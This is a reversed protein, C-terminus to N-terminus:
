PEFPPVCDGADVIPEYRPRNVSLGTVIQRASEPVDLDGQPTYWLSFLMALQHTTYMLARSELMEAAREDSVPGPNNPTVELQEYREAEDTWINILKDSWARAEDPSLPIASRLQDRDLGFSPDLVAHVVLGIENWLLGSPDVRDVPNGGVYTYMNVGGALGIPDRTLFRGAVADYWRNQMFFLGGSEDTVGYRGVHTFPNEVRAFASAVQGYPTYRYIAAPKGAEDTLAATNGNKDHHYFFYGKDKREMAVIAAERWFYRATVEGGETEFLLRGSADHHFVKTRGNVTSRVRRGLGDYAHAANTGHLVLNTLRAEADYQATFRSPFNTTMGGRWDRQVASGNWNTLEDGLDYQARNTAPGFVPTISLFGAEKVLNTTRGMVDREYRLQVLVNTGTRHRLRTLQGAADYVRYSDTGNSSIENTVNGAADLQFQISQGDWTMSTIRHRLDRGYTVVPGGPYSITTVVGAPNHVFSAALGDPYVINTVRRMSDRHWRTTGLGNSFAILTGGADYSYAAAGTGNHYKATVIGDADYAFALRRKEDAYLNGWATVNTVRGLRDHQYEIRSYRIPAPPLIGWDCNPYQLATLRGVADYEFQYSGGRKNVLTTLRGLADNTLSLVAGDRNTVSVLRDLVDYGFRDSTGDPYAIRLLNNRDDYTYNVQRGLPDTRRTIYQWANREVRNTYGREDVVASWACCDYEIRRHRGDAYTTTTLRDNNDYTLATPLGAPDTIMSPRLGQADFQVAWTGGAPDVANTANGYVDHRYQYLRNGPLRLRTLLGNTGFEASVSRGAPSVWNTLNGRADYRFRTVGGVANTAATLRSEADYGASRVSGDELTLRVLNGNTDYVMYRSQMSPDTRQVPLDNSFTIHTENWLPDTMQYTRGAVSYFHTPGRKPDIRSTARNTIDPGPMWYYNTTLNPDVVEAVTGNGAYSFAWTKGETTMSTIIGSVMGVHGGPLWSALTHNYATRHGAFDVSQTLIVGRDDTSYHYTAARGDPAVMQTCVNGPGYQFVTSRGAADRVSTIREGANWTVTVKNSNEDRIWDLNGFASVHAAMSAATVTTTFVCTLRTDPNWLTFFVPLGNTLNHATLRRRDGTMSVYVGNWSPDYNGGPALASEPVSYWRMAGDGDEHVAYERHARIRQDYPFSWCNGFMRSYYPTSNYTRVFDIRPGFTSYAFDCDQLLLNLTAMNIRFGPLGMPSCRNPGDPPPPESDPGNPGPGTGTPPETASYSEDPDGRLDPLFGPSYEIVQSPQIRALITAGQGDRGNPPCNLVSCGYYIPIRSQEKRPFFVMAGGCAFSENAGWYRVSYGVQLFRQWFACDTNTPNTNGPATVELVVEDGPTLEATYRWYSNGPEPAGDFTTPADISFSISDYDTTCSFASADQAAPFLLLGGAVLMQLRHKM